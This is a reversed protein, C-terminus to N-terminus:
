SVVYPNNSTGNGKDIMTGPRLSISPRLGISNAGYNSLTGSSYVAFLAAVGYTDFRCPSLSGWYGYSICYNYYVVEEKGYIGSEVEIKLM